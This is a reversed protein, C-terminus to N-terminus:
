GEQEKRYGGSGEEKTVGVGEGVAVLRMKMKM